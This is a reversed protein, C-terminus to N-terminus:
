LYPGVTQAVGFDLVRAIGPHRVAATARAERLLRDGLYSRDSSSLTAGHHPLKVAVPLDLVLDRALWVSGMSGQSITQSLRYRGAVLQGIRYGHSSAGNARENPLTSILSSADM